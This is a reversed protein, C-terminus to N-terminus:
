TLDLEMENQTSRFGLKEYIRKDNGIAHLLIRGAKKERAHSIIENMLATAIGSGRHDPLTYVNMIHAEIGDINEYIPPREMFQIGSTAVIKGDEVAMLVQFEGTQFTKIFFDRTRAKLKETGGEQQIKGVEYLMEMRMEVVRDVDSLQAEKIEFM